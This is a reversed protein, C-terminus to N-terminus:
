CSYGILCQISNLQRLMEVSDDFATSFLESWADKHTGATDSVRQLDEKLLFTWNEGASLEQILKLRQLLAKAKLSWVTRADMKALLEGLKAGAAHIRLVREGLNGNTGGDVLMPVSITPDQLLQFFVETSGFFVKKMEKDPSGRRLVYPILVESRTLTLRTFDDYLSQRAPLHWKTLFASSPASNVHLVVSGEPTPQGGIGAGDEGGARFLATALRFPAFSTASFSLGSTEITIQRAMQSLPNRVFSADFAPGERFVKKLWSELFDVPIALLNNYNRGDDQEPSEVRTDGGETLHLIQHSLLGILKGSRRDFVPGGSMGFEGHGGVIEIVSSILPLLHRESRLRLVSGRADNYLASSRYPYGAVSIPTGDEVAGLNTGSISSLDPLVQANNGELRLLGLGSGWDVAVIEAGNRAGSEWQVTHCYNGSVGREHVLVHESTLVYAVGLYSFAYGSGRFGPDEGCQGSLTKVIPSPEGAMSDSGSVLFLIALFFRTVKSM